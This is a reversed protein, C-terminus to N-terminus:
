HPVPGFIAFTDADGFALLSLSLPMSLLIIGRWVQTIHPLPIKTTDKFIISM